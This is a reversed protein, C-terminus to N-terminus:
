KPAAAAPATESGPLPQLAPPPENSAAPKGADDKKEEKKEVLLQSREKLLPELTWSSVLYTWKEYGKEQALKEELKKQKEKFEKDLKDKDEAKEDKGPTREKPLQASVKVILPFNDNTKTGVKLTYTFNDFTDLTVLTPKDFGLQEPKSGTDVDNFSPSSLPNAVGAAKSSDLQEGPKAEALKWEGTETERSLKWSNTAVPFAVNIGRVKDVKFFDKNLWQEPKPEIRDLPDSILAVEESKAGPKVYRGDPWGGGGMEDGFPSAGKSKRMHKKGLLLTQLVKGNQDKFEVTVPANTGQGVALGFRGLQSPGVKEPPQVAKLDKAKLLFESLEGYNAPYDNRQQVRWMGDKKALTLENTGEQVTLAAVDNVALDPLLKKGLAANGQRGVDNRKNYIILGGLGVVVVLCLLITIQNRNM